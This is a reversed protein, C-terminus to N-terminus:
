FSRVILWSIELLTVHDDPCVGDDLSKGALPATLVPYVKRGKIEMEDVFNM